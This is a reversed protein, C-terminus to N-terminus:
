LGLWSYGSLSNNGLELKTLSSLGCIADITGNLHNNWLALFTLRSLGSFQPEIQGTLSNNALSLVQLKTLRTGMCSPITGNLANQHLALHTLNDLQCLEDPIPGTFDAHLAAYWSASLPWWRTLVLVLRLARAKSQLLFSVLLSGPM